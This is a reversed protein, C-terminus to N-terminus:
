GMEFYLFSLDLFFFCSGLALGLGEGPTPYLVAAM